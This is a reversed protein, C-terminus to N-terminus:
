DCIFAKEVTMASGCSNCNLRPPIGKASEMKKGCRPFQHEFEKM